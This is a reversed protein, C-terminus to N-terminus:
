QDLIQNKEKTSDQLLGRGLKLLLNIEKIIGVSKIEVYVKFVPRRGTTSTIFYMKGNPLSTRTELVIDIKKLSIKLKM